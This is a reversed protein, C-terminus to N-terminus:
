ILNSKPLSGMLSERRSELFKQKRLMCGFHQFIVKLLETFFLVQPLSWTAAIVTLSSWGAQVILELKKELNIWFAVPKSYCKAFMWIAVLCTCAIKCFNIFTSTVAWLQLSSFYLLMHKRYQLPISQTIVESVDTVPTLDTVVRATLHPSPQTMSATHLHSFLAPSGERYELLTTINGLAYGHAVCGKEQLPTSLSRFCTKITGPLVAIALLHFLAGSFM